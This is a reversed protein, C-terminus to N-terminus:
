RYAEEMQKLRYSTDSITTIDGSEDYHLEGSGTSYLSLAKIGGSYTFNGQVNVAAYPAILFAHMEATGNMTLADTGLYHIRLQYPKNNLNFVQNGNFKDGDFKRVYLNITGTGPQPDFNLRGTNPINLTDIFYSYATTQLTLVKNNGVTVSAWCKQSPDNGAVNLTQSSSVTLAGQDSPCYTNWTSYAPLDPVNCSPGQCTLGPNPCNETFDACIKGGYPSDNSIYGNTRAAGYIAENQHIQMVGNSGATCNARKSASTYAGNNSIYSDCSQLMQLVNRGYFGIGYDLVLSATLYGLLQAGRDTATLADLRYIPQFDTDPPSFGDDPDGYDKAPDIPLADVLTAKVLANGFSAATFSTAPNFSLGTLTDLGSPFQSTGLSDEKTLLPTNNTGRMKIKSLAPVLSTQNDGASLSSRDFNTYFNNRSFILALGTSNARFWSVALNLGEEGKFYNESRNESAKVSHVGSQTIDTSTSIIMLALVALVMVGVMVYGSESYQRKGVM